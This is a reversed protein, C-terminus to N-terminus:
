FNVISGSVSIHLAAYVIFKGIIISGIIISICLFINHDKMFKLIKEM